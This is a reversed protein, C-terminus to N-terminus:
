DVEQEAKLSGTNASLPCRQTATPARSPAAGCTPSETSSGDPDSPYFEALEERARELMWNGWYRVDTALPNRRYAEALNGDAFSSQSGTRQPGKLIYDPM